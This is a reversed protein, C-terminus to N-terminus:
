DTKIFRGSLDYYDIPSDPGVEVMIVTQYEDVVYTSSTQIDVRNRDFADVSHRRMADDRVADFTQASVDDFAVAGDSYDRSNTGTTTFKTFFGPVIEVSGTRNPETFDMLIGGSNQLAGARMTPTGSQTGRIEFRTFLPQTRSLGTQAIAVAAQDMALRFDGPDFWAAIKGSTDAQVTEEHEYTDGFEATALVPQDNAARAIKMSEFQRSESPLAASMQDIISNIQMPAVAALSFAKAARDTTSTRDPEYWEGSSESYWIYLSEGTSPDLVYARDNGNEELELSLVNQTASPGLNSIQNMLQYMRTQYDESPGDDSSYSGTETSPFSVSFHWGGGVGLFLAAAVAITILPYVLTSKPPNDGFEPEPEPKGGGQYPLSEPPRPPIFSSPLRTDANTLLNAVMGKPMASLWRTRFETDNPPAITATVLTPQVNSADLSSRTVAEISVPIQQPSHGGQLLGDIRRPRPAAFVAAIGLPVGLGLAVGWHNYAGLGVACGLLVGAFVSRIAFRFGPSRSPGSGRKSGM